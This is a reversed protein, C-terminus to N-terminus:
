LKCQYYDNASIRWRHIGESRCWPPFQCFSPNIFVHVLKANLIVAFSLWAFCILSISLREVVIKAIKKNFQNIKMMERYNWMIIYNWFYTKFTYPMDCKITYSYHEINSSTELFDAQNSCLLINGFQCSKIYWLYRNQINLFSRNLVYIAM